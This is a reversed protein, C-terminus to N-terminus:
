KVNEKIVDAPLKVQQGIIVHQLRSGKKVELHELLAPGQAEGSIRGQLKGGYIVQARYLILSLWKYRRFLLSYYAQTFILGGLTWSIGLSCL